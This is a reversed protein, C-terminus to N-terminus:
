FVKGLDTTSNVVNGDVIIRDNDVRVYINKLSDVVPLGRVTTRNGSISNDKEVYMNGVGIGKLIEMVQQGLIQEVTSRKDEEITPKKDREM